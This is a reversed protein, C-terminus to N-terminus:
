ETTREIREFFKKNLLSDVEKLAVYPLAEAPVKQSQTGRLLLDYMVLLGAMPNVNYDDVDYFVNVKGKKFPISVSDKVNMVDSKMRIMREGNKNQFCFVPFMYNKQGPFISVKGDNEISISASFRNKGVLVERNKVQLIDVSDHEGVFYIPESDAPNCAYRIGVMGDVIQEQFQVLSKDKPMAKEIAQTIFEARMQNNQQGFNEFTAPEKAQVQTRSKDIRPISSFQNIFDTVETEFGDLSSHGTTIMKSLNQVFDADAVVSRWSESHTKIGRVVSTLFKSDDESELLQGLQPGYESMSVNESQLLQVLGAVTNNYINTGGEYGSWLEALYNPRFKMSTFDQILKIFEDRKLPKHFLIEFKEVDRGLDSFISIPTEKTIISDKRVELLNELPIEEIKYPKNHNQKEAQNIRRENEM